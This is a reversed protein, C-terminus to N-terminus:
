VSLYFSHSLRSKNNQIEGFPGNVNVCIWILACYCAFLCLCVYVCVYVCVCVCVCVYVCVCVNNTLREMAM